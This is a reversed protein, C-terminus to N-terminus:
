TDIRSTDSSMAREERAIMGDVMFRWMQAAIEPDFGETRSLEIVHSVVEEVRDEIRAPLGIAPKIQAARDIHAQRISLLKILEQDLTDIQGRLEAMTTIDQPSKLTMNQAM